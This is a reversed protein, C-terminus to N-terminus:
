KSHTHPSIEIRQYKLVLKEDLSMIILRFIVVVVVVIIGVVVVVIIIAIVIVLCISPTQTGLVQHAKFDSKPGLSM